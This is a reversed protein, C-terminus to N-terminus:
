QGWKWSVQHTFCPGLFLGNFNLASKFWPASVCIIKWKHSLANPRQLISAMCRTTFTLLPWVYGLTSISWMVIQMWLYWYYEWNAQVHLLEFKMCFASMASAWVTTEHSFRCLQLVAVFAVSKDWVLTHSYFRLCVCIMGSIISKGVDLHLSYAIVGGYINHTYHEFKVRLKSSSVCVYKSM